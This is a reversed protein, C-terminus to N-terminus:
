RMIVIKETAVGEASSLRLLYTGAQLESLDLQGQFNRASQGLHGTRVVNGVANYVAWDLKGPRLLSLDYRIMGNSPNPYIRSTALWTSPSAAATFLLSGITGCADSQRQYRVQFNGNTTPVFFDNTAGTIAGTTSYWQYNSGPGPAFLTDGSQTLTVQTSDLITISTTFTEACVGSATATIGYTGPASNTLDISGSDADLVLGPLSTFLLPSPGIVVPTIQGSAQCVTDPTYMVVFGQFPEVVNVTQTFQGACVGGIAYTITYTAATSSGLQIEGSIPDILLGSPLASFTGIGPAAITAPMATGIACYENQAYNFFPDPMNQIVITDMGTSPCQGTTSYSVFYTGTASNNVDVTGSASDIVLFSPSAAFTGGSLGLVVPTMASAGGICATDPIYAFRTDDTALITIVRTTSDPFLVYRVQWTGPNCGALDILGTSNNLFTINGQPASFVGGSTTIYTPTLIGANQCHSGATYGFDTPSGLLSQATASSHLFIFCAFLLLMAAFRTFYNKM